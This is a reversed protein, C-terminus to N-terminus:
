MPRLREGGNERLLIVTTGENSSTVTCLGYLLVWQAVTGMFTQSKQIDDWGLDVVWNIVREGQKQKSSSIEGLDSESKCIQQTCNM